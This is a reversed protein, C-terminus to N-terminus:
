TVNETAEVCVAHWRSPQWRSSQCIRVMERVKKSEAVNPVLM